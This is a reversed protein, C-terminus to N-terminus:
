SRNGKLAERGVTEKERGSGSEGKIAADRERRKNEYRGGHAMDRVGETTTKRSIEREQVRGRRASSPSILWRVKRRTLRAGRRPVGVLHV